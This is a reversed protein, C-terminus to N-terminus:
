NMYVYFYKPVCTSNKQQRRSNKWLKRMIM